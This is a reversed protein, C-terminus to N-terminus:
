LVDLFAQMNEAAAAADRLFAYVEHCVEIADDFPSGHHEYHVLNEM